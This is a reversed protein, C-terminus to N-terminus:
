ESREHRKDEVCSVLIDALKRGAVDWTFNSAHRKGAATRQERREADEESLEIIADVWASVTHPDVYQAADGCVEPLAGCPACITPTGLLMAELPPLGFGETLSPFLLTSANEILSRLESDQVIGTFVVNPPVRIGLKEFHQKTAGGFLVLKRDRLREGGYAEILVRVNKHAQDNALGIAYERPLLQHKELISSDGPHSLIHDVGNHIVEIKPKDAVGWISLQEKSYESVTLIKKSSKGIRPLAFHYWKRFHYSYSEPTIFVQADHIMTVAPKKNIPALNCLSVLLAERAYYPLELQEWFQWTMHGVKRHPFHDSEIERRSDKAILIESTLKEALKRDASMHRGLATILEYAVRHVGSPAASLFKGNFSVKTM